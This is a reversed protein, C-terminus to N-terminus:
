SADMRAEPTAMPWPSPRTRGANMLVGCLAMSDMHNWYAISSMGWATAFLSRRLAQTRQIEMFSRDMSDPIEECRAPMFQGDNTVTRFGTSNPYVQRPCAPQGDLHQCCSRKYLTRIKWTSSMRIAKGIRSPPSCPSEDAPTRWAGQTTMSTCSQAVVPIQDFSFITDTAISEGIAKWCTEDILPSSM